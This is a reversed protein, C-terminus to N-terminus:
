KDGVLVDTRDIGREQSALKEVVPKPMQAAVDRTGEDSSPHPREATRENDTITLKGDGLCLEIVVKRAPQSVVFGAFAECCEDSAFDGHSMRSLFLHLVDLDPYQATLTAAFAPLTKPITAKGHPARAQVELQKLKNYVAM